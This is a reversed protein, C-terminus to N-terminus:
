NEPPKVRRGKMMQLIFSEEQPKDDLFAANGKLRHRANPNLGLKDALGAALKFAQEAARRHASAGANGNSYEVVIGQDNAARMQAIYIGVESAYMTLLRLDSPKLMKMEILRQGDEQYVQAADDDLAFAPAPLTKLLDGAAERKGHRDARYTGAKKLEDISKRHM